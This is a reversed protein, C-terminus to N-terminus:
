KKITTLKSNDSMKAKLLIKLFFPLPLLNVITAKNAIVDISSLFHLPLLSTTMMKKAELLFFFSQIVSALKTTRANNKAFFVFVFVKSVFVFFNFFSSSLWQTM